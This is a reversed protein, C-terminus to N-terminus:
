FCFCECQVCVCQTCVDMWETWLVCRKNEDFEAMTIAVESAVDEPTGDARASDTRDNFFSILRSVPPHLIGMIMGM